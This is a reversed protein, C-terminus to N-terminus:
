QHVEQSNEIRVPRDDHHGSVWVDQLRDGFVAARSPGAGAPWATTFGDLTLGKVYAFIMAAPTPGYDPLGAAGTKAGGRMKKVRAIDEYGTMRMLINRFSLNEIISEPLGQVLVRGKTYVTIDSFAVDRIHSLRSDATRKDVEIAIPWEVGQGWKPLTTMVINQFRIDEMTGGDMALLAIGTRSDRIVCNSFVCHRFDGHSETGLKLASAASVLVCNTVAVNETPQVPAEGRNTTKLVICDDGAEIHSDSVTVNRSSDIDIGDTNIARLNNLLEIGRIRVGDCNKPHLAWAPARRIAIDQIRINHSDWIEILPSPRPLPKLDKDLFSDGQGDITGSGEIAINEVGKAYILHKPNYDAMRTSGLLVAGPSLHLTVNSRLTITGSLFRGAPFLVTGGHAGAADIAKQIAATDLTRGDGIAGYTRVDFDAAHAISSILLLATSCAKLKSHRSELRCKGPVRAHRSSLRCPLSFAQEVTVTKREQAM